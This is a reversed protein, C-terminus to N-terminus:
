VGLTNPPLIPGSHGAAHRILRSFPPPLRNATLQQEHQPRPARHGHQCTRARKSWRQVQAEPGGARAAAGPPRTATMCFWTLSNLVVDHWEFGRWLIWFWTVDYLVVDRWVFGHWLMWFLTVHYLVVDSCKFSRWTMRFWTVDYLVVDTCKFGRWTMCFRTWTNLVVNRWVFSRWLM